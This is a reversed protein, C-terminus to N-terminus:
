AFIVSVILALWALLFLIMVIMYGITQSGAKYPLHSHQKMHLLAELDKCRKYKATRVGRLQYACCWVFVSLAVGAVSMIILVIKQMPCSAMAVGNLVFGMLVASGIWNLSIITWVLTDHHQASDQAKQYEILYAERQNKQALPKQRKPTPNNAM